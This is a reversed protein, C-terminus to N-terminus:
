SGSTLARSARSTSCYEHILGRSPSIPTLKVSKPTSFRGPASCPSKLWRAAFCELAAGFLDAFSATFKRSRRHISMESERRSRPGPSTRARMSDLRYNGLRLNRAQGPVSQAMCKAAPQGHGTGAHVFDHLGSAVLGHGRRGPIEMKGRLVRLRTSPMLPVDVALLCWFM